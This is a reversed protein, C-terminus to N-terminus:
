RGQQLSHHSRRFAQGLSSEGTEYRGTRWRGVSRSKGGGADREKFLWGNQGSRRKKKVEGKGRWKKRENREKRRNRPVEPRSKKKKKQVKNKKKKEKKKKDRSGTEVKGGTVEGRERQEARDNRGNETSEGKEQLTGRRSPERSGNKQGLDIKEVFM